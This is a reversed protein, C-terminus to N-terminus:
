ASRGTQSHTGTRESLGSSIASLFSFHIELKLFTSVGKLLFDSGHVKLM